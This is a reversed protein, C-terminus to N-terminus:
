DWFNLQNLFIFLLDRCISISTLSNSIIRIWRKNTVSYPTNALISYHFTMWIYQRTLRFANDGSNFSPLPLGKSFHQHLPRERHYSKLNYFRILPLKFPSITDSIKFSSTRIGTQCTSKWWIHGKIFRKWQIRSQLFHSRILLFLNTSTHSIM